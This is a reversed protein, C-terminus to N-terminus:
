VMYMYIFKWTVQGALPLRKTIEVLSSTNKDWRYAGVARDTYGVFVDNCKASDSICLHVITVYLLCLIHSM